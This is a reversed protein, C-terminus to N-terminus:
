SEYDESNAEFEDRCDASCFYYTTGKHELTGPADREDVTMGCVPDTAM